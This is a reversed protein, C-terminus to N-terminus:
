RGSPEGTSAAAVVVVGGGSAALCPSTAAAVMALGNEGASHALAPMRGCCPEAAAWAFAALAVRQAHEDRGDRGGRGRGAILVIQGLHHVHQATLVVAPPQQALRGRRLM